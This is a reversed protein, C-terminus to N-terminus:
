WLKTKNEITRVIGGLVNVDDAYFLLQYTGKLKLGEQNEQVRTIACVLVFNFLLSWYGIERGKEM